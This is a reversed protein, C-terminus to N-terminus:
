QHIFLNILQHTFKHNFIIIQLNLTLQFDLIFAIRYKYTGRLKEEGNENDEKKVTLDIIMIAVLFPKSSSPSIM